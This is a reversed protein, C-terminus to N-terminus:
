RTAIRARNKEWIAESMGEVKRVDDPKKFPGHAERHAVIRQAVKRGVGPLTMLEKVDATNINVRTESPAAVVRPPRAAKPAVETGAAAEGSPRASQAHAPWSVLLTPLIALASLVHLITM